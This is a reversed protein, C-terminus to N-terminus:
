QPQLDLFLIWFVSETGKHKSLFSVQKFLTLWSFCFLVPWPLSDPLVGHERTNKLCKKEGKTHIEKSKALLPFYFGTSIWLGNVSLCPEERSMWHKSVHGMVERSCRNTLYKNFGPCVKEATQQLQSVRPELGLPQLTCPPASLVWRCCPYFPLNSFVAVPQCFSVALLGSAWPWPGPAAGGALVAHRIAGTGTLCM